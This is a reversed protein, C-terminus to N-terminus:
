EDSSLFGVGGVFERGALLDPVCIHIKLALSLIQYDLQLLWGCHLASMVASVVWVELHKRSDSCLVYASDGRPLCATLTLDQLRVNTLSLSGNM